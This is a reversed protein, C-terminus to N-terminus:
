STIIVLPRLLSLPIPVSEVLEDKLSDLPTSDFVSPPPALPPYSTAEENNETVMPNVEMASCAPMIRLAKKCAIAGNRMADFINPAPFQLLFLPSPNHKSCCLKKEKQKRRTPLPIPYFYFNVKKMMSEM